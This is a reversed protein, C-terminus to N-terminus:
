GWFLWDKCVSAITKAWAKKVWHWSSLTSWKHSRSALQYVLVLLWSNVLSAVLHAINSPLPLNKQEQNNNSVTEKTQGKWIKLFYFIKTYVPLPFSFPLLCNNRLLCAALRNLSPSSTSFHPLALWIWSIPSSWPFLTTWSVQNQQPALVALCTSTDSLVWYRTVGNIPWHLIHRKRRFVFFGYRLLNLLCQLPLHWKLPRFIPVPHAPPVVYNSTYKCYNSKNHVHMDIDWMVIEGPQIQVEGGKPM